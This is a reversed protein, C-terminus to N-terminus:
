RLKKKHQACGKVAAPKETTEATNDFLCFFFNLKGV